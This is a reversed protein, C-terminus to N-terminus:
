HANLWWREGVSRAIVMHHRLYVMEAKVLEQNVKVQRRTEKLLSGVYNRSYSAPLAEGLVEKSANVSLKKMSSVMIEKIGEMTLGGKEM